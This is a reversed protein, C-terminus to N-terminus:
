IEIKDEVPADLRDHEHFYVRTTEISRHRAAVQAEVISAGSQIALTVFSHRLSHPSIKKNKIGSKMMYANVQRSITRTTLRKGYNRGGLGIFLPEHPKLARRVSLFDQIAHIAPDTLVVFEDREDRGKGFVRLIQRGQRSEIDGVNARQVEIV